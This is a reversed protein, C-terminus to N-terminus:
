ERVPGREATVECELLSFAEAQRASMRRYDRGGTLKWANYEEIWSLSEATILSKPCQMAVVRGRAWVAREPM